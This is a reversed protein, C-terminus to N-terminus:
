PMFSTSPSYRDWAHDYTPSRLAAVASPTARVRILQVDVGAKKYYGMRDALDIVSNPALPTEPETIIIQFPDAAAKPAAFVAPALMAAVALFRIAFSFM